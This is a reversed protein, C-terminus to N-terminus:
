LMMSLITGAAIAVGYPLTQKRVPVDNEQTEGKSRRKWIIFLLGMVGGCLATFFLADLIGPWGLFAGVGAMLKVDGGGIAKMLWFFFFIGGGVAWGLLCNLFGVRGGLFFGLSLGAIAIGYTLLNPLTKGTYDCVAAALLCVSLFLNLM